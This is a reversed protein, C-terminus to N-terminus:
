QGFGAIAFADDPSAVNVTQAKKVLPDDAPIVGLSLARKLIMRPTEHEMKMEIEGSRIQAIETELENIRNIAKSIVGVVQRMVPSDVLAKNIAQSTFESVSDALDEYTLAAISKKKAEEEKPDGEAGDPAADTDEEEDEAAMDGEAKLEEDAEPETDTTVTPNEGLVLDMVNRAPNIFKGDVEAKISKRIVGAEDMKKSQEDATVYAAVAQRFAPTQKMQDLLAKQQETLM